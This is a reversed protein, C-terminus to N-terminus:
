PTTVKLRFFQKADSVKPVSVLVNRQGSGSDTINAGSGNAAVTATGGTSTASNTWNILNSSTQVTYTIDTNSADCRFSFQLQDSMRTIRPLISAGDPANPNGYLAYKLLNPVGDGSPNATNAADDTDTTIGFHTQRWDALGIREILVPADSVTITQTGILSTVNGALDHCWLVGAPVKYNLTTGPVWVIWGTYNNPRKIQCTWVGNVDSACSVMTAGSLWKETQVYAVTGAKPVVWNNNADQQVGVNSIENWSYWCFRSAGLAWDLVYARCLYDVTQSMPYQSTGGYGWGAEDNWVPKAQLGYDALLSRIAAMHAIGQEPTDDYLHFPLVDANAGGGAALYSDYWSLPNASLGGSPPAALVLASSDAARVAGALAAELAAMQGPTGSWFGIDPENWTEYFAIRGKYRTALASVFATYNAIDKPNGAGGPYGYYDIATTSSAWTPTQYVTYIIQVGNTQARNVFDDLQTWNYTHVGSVPANPEINSWFPACDHSRVTGFPFNPWPLYPANYLHNMHMGFYVSPIATSPPTLTQPSAPANGTFSLSADDVWLTGTGSSGIILAGVVAPTNGSITVQQWTGSLRVPQSAYNTYPAGGQRLSVTVWMPSQSKMWVSANTRGAQFTVWQVFQVFGSSVEIKQSATGGHIYSASAAQQSYVVNIGSAWSTNDSWGNAIKGSVGTASVNIYPAEFDPNVLTQASTMAPSVLLFAALRPISAFLGVLRFFIPNEMQPKVWTLRPNNIPM